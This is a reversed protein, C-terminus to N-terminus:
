PREARVVRLKAPTAVVFCGSWTRAEPTSFWGVLYDAIRSQEDDPLRIVLVGHHTGAAFRRADSFDMDLTVLFRGARQAGSWVDADSKGALGEDVVTDVDFGLARLRPASRAPLNEDLKLKM